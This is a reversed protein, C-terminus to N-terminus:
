VALAARGKGWPNNRVWSSIVTREFSAPPGRKPNELTLLNM